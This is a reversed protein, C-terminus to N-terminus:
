RRKGGGKGGGGGGSAAAKAEAAAQQAAQQAERKQAEREQLARKEMEKMILAQQQAMAANRQKRSVMTPIKKALAKLLMDKNLISSVVPNGEGDSVEVRLRGIMVWCDKQRPYKKPEPLM